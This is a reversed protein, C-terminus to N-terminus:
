VSLLAVASLRSLGFYKTANLNDLQTLRKTPKSRSIQYIVFLLSPVTKYEQLLVDFSVYM